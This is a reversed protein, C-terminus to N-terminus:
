DDGYNREAECIGEEMLELSRDEGSCQGCECDPDHAKHLADKLMEVEDEDREIDYIYVAQNPNTQLIRDAIADLTAKDLADTHLRYLSVTPM